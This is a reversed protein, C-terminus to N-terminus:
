YACLLLFSSHNKEEIMWGLAISIWFFVSKKKLLVFFIYWGNYLENLSSEEDDLIIM